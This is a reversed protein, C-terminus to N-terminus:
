CEVFEKLYLRSVERARTNLTMRMSTLEQDVEQIFHVIFDVVKHKWLRELHQAPPPPLSLTRSLTHSLPLALFLFLFLFLCLCLERARARHPQAWHFLAASEPALAAVHPRVTNTVLFSIDYGPLPKRRLVIFQEARQCLFRSLKHSLISTINDKKLIAISIRVSNVSPEIYCMEHETRCIRIPNLLLEKSAGELIKAEYVPSGDPNVAGTAVM